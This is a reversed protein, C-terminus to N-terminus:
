DKAYYDTSYSNARIYILGSLTGGILYSFPAATFHQCHEGVLERRVEVWSFDAPDLSSVFEGLLTV